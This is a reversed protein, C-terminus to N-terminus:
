KAPVFKALLAETGDELMTTIAINAMHDGCSIVVCMEYIPIGAMDAKVHLAKADQGAFKVDRDTLVVNSCGMSELMTKVSDKALSIYTAPTIVKGYLKGLNEFNININDGTETNAASMDYIVDSKKLQEAYEEGAINAVAENLQKMEEETSFKWGEDLTIKANLFTSTYTNGETVPVTYDFGETTAETKAQTETVKQSSTEKSINGREPEKSSCATFTAVTLVALVASLIKTKM